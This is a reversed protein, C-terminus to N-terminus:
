KSISHSRFEKRHCINQLPHLLVFPLPIGRITDLYCSCALNCESIQPLIDTQERDQEFLYHVFSDNGEHNADVILRSTLIDSAVHYLFITSFASIASCSSFSISFSFLFSLCTRRCCKSCFLPFDLPQCCPPCFAILTPFRRNKCRSSSCRPWFFWEIRLTFFMMHTVLQFSHIQKLELFFPCIAFLQGCNVPFTYPRINAIVLSSLSGLEETM